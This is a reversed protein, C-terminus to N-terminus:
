GNKIVCIKPVPLWTCGAQACPIMSEYQACYNGCVGKCNLKCDTKLLEDQCTYLDKGNNLWKPECCFIEYNKSGCQIKCDKKYESIENGFIAGGTIKIGDVGIFVVAIVAILVIAIFITILIKGKKNELRFM